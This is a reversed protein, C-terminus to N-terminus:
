RYFLLPHATGQRPPVPRDVEEYDMGEVVLGEDIM